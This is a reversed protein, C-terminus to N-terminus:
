HKDYLIAGGAWHIYLHVLIMLGNTKELRTYSGGLFCAQGSPLLCSGGRLEVCMCSEEKSSRMKESVKWLVKKIM